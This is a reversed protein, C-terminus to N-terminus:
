VIRTRLSTPLAGIARSLDLARLEDPELALDVILLGVDDVTGLSQGTVNVESEAVARNIASLVGPVNRHVNVIRCGRSLPAAELNPLNVSGTTSGHVLYSGLASGVERGINEQAEETSGGIHPTLIVTDVGRLESVFPAKPTSPEAPYVDIAAGALHGSELAVKLAAIDVVQGRSANLLYSGARMCGIEAEGIMGRTLETDPVHLTVFDSTRLLRELSEAPRANGLPLKAGVDYYLVRLGLSEALVSFQSGIHGYGIIGVTKGRVEHSGVASKRWEGRHCAMSRPFIQRSLMIIQGLILEAVSRTNSFPANFVAVGAHRAGELDIQDTGICFAGLAVLNPVAEFVEASVKTKSRIGVMRPIDGPLGRLTEILESAAMGRSHTHIEVGSRRLEEHASLHINELLLVHARSVARVIGCGM